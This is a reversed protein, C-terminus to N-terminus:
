EKEDGRLKGRNKANSELHRKRKKKDVGGGERKKEL